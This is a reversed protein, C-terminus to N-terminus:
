DVGGVDYFGVSVLVEVSGVDFLGCWYNVFVDFVVQGVCLVLLVGFEIVVCQCQVELVVVLVDWDVYGLGVVICLCDIFDVLFVYIQVDCLMQLCNELCCLFVYVQLLDVGDQVVMQGCVVLVLLVYLLCCECLLVDCGGCILQLVQVLFEIECIGGFGCKIDDFMECCVVEVIIVVKM